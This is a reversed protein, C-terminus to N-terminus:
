YGSISYRIAVVPPNPAGEPRGREKYVKEYQSSQYPTGFYQVSYLGDAVPPDLRHWESSVAVGGVQCGDLNSREFV